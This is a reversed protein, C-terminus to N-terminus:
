FGIVGTEKNRCECRRSAQGGKESLSEFGFKSLKQLAEDVAALPKNLEDAIIAITQAQFEEADRILTATTVVAANLSSIEDGGKITVLEADSNTLAEINSLVIKLRRSVSFSLLLGSILSALLLASLGTYLSLYISKVAQEVAEAQRLKQEQDQDFLPQLLPVKQNLMAQRLMPSQMSFTGNLMGQITGDKTDTNQFINMYAQDRQSLLSWYHGLIRLRDPNDSWLKDLEKFIASSDVQAEIYKQRYFKNATSLFLTVIVTLQRENIIYRDRAMTVKVFHQELNQATALRELEKSIVAIFVIQMALPIVVVLLIKFKLSIKM